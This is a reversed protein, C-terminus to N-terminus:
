IDEDGQDINFVYTDGWIVNKNLKKFPSEFQNQGINIVCQIM